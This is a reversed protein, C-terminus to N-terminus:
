RGVVYEQRKPDINLMRVALGMEHTGGLFSDDERMLRIDRKRADYVPSKKNSSHANHNSQLEEAFLREKEELSKFAPHAYPIYASLRTDRTQRSVAAVEHFGKWNPKNASFVLTEAGPHACTFVMSPAGDGANEYTNTPPKRFPIEVPPVQFVSRKHMKVTFMLMLLLNFCYHLPSLKCLTDRSSRKLSNRVRQTTCLLRNLIEQPCAAPVGGGATLATTEPDAFALHLRMM